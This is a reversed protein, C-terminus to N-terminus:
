SRRRTDVLATREPLTSTHQPQMEVGGVPPLHREVQGPVGLRDAAQLREPLQPAPREEVSPPLGHPGPHATRGPRQELRNGGVPVHRVQERGLRVASIRGIAHHRFQPLRSLWVPRLQKREAVSQDRVLDGTDGRGHRRDACEKAGLEGM